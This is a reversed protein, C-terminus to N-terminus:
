DILKLLDGSRKVWTFVVLRRTGPYWVAAVPAITLPKNLDPLTASPAPVDSPFYVKHRSGPAYPDVSIPLGPASPYTSSADEGMVKTAHFGPLGVLTDDSAADDPNFPTDFRQAPLLISPRDTPLARLASVSEAPIKAATNGVSPVELVAFDLSSAKEIAQRLALPATLSRSSADAGDGPKSHLTIGSLDGASEDFKSTITLLPVPKRPDFVLAQWNNLKLLNCHEAEDLPPWPQPSLSLLRLDPLAIFVNPAKAPKPTVNYHSAMDRESFYAWDYSCRLSVNLSAIPKEDFSVDLLTGVSDSSRMCASLLVATSLILLARFAEGMLHERKSSFSASNSKNKM